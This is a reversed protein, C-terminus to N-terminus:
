IGFLQKITQKQKAKAETTQSGVDKIDTKPPIPPNVASKAKSLNKKRIKNLTEKGVIGEIVEEPMVAFMEKLDAHMDSEVISIVDEPTVDLGNQLGLMLYDAMKKVVYPTKPLKSGEIAKSMAVDYQEYAQEQLRSFEKQKSDEKEKEREEKMSKLEAQLKEKELQEPSKSSNEIEEEIIEAALKKLDINVLPNALAKKPNKQLEEVFAKIEKELSSYEQAKTRALRDMQLKGRMYEVSAADDPIEFPLEEDYERGNFKIKLSKLMKKAVAKEAPTGTKAQDVLDAVPAEGSAELGEDQSEPAVNGMNSQTQPVGQPTAAPAASPASAPSDASM